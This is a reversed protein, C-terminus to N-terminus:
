CDYYENRFCAKEFMYFIKGGFVSFKRIFVKINKMNNSLDNITTVRLFSATRVLVWLRHKQASFLFIIYVGTFGMKVIHFHPKLPDFNYLCTKTIGNRGGVM